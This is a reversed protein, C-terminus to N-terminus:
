DRRHQAKMEQTGDGREQNILRNQPDERLCLLPM